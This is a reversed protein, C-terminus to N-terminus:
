LGNTGAPAWSCVSPHLKRYRGAVDPSSASDHDCSSSESDHGDHFSSDIYGYDSASDLYVDRSPRVIDFDSDIRGYVSHDHGDFADLDSIDFWDDHRSYADVATDRHHGCSGDAGGSADDHWDFADFHGYRM